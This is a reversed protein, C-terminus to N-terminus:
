PTTRDILEPLHAGQWPRSLQYKMVEAQVGVYCLRALQKPQELDTIRHM